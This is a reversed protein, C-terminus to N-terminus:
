TEVDLDLSPVFLAEYIEDPKPVAPKRVLKEIREVADGEIGDDARLHVVFQEVVKLVTLSLGIQGNDDTM